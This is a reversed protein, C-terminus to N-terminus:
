TCTFATFVLTFVIIAFVYERYYWTVMLDYNTHM